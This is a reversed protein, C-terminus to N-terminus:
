RGPAAPGLWESGFGASVLALLFEVHACGCRTGVRVDLNCNLENACELGIGRELLHRCKRLRRELSPSVNHIYVFWGLVIVKRAASGTILRKGDVSVAM